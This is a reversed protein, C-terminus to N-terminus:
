HRYLLCTNIIHVANITKKLSNKGEEDKERIEYEEKTM